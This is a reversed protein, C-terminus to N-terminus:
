KESIVFSVRSTEGASVAVSKEWTKPEGFVPRQVRQETLVDLAAEQRAVGWGEHWAVLQYHGPPVDTLEFKGSEDTVTYYPHDIVM